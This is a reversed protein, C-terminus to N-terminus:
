KLGFPLNFHDPLVWLHYMNAEDILESTKPFVEVAASEEGFIENKIRQKESWPIDTGESNRMCAHQVTGWETEVNRIMVVYQSNSDRYVRDLEGFWGNGAKLQKPSQHQIWGPIRPNNKERDERRREARNMNIERNM